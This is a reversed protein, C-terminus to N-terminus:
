ELYDRLVTDGEAKSGGATFGYDLPNEGLARLLSKALSAKVVHNLFRIQLADKAWGQRHAKTDTQGSLRQYVGYSLHFLRNYELVHAAWEARIRAASNRAAVRQGISSASTALEDIDLAPYTVEAVYTKTKWGGSKKDIHGLSGESTIDFWGVEQHHNDHVVFDPRTM